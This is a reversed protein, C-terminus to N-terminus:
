AEPKQMIIRKGFIDLWDDNSKYKEMDTVVYSIDFDQFKDIPANKNLKSGEMIVARICDDNKAFTLIIDLMEKENRM